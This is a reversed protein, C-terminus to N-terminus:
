GALPTRKARRDVATMHAVDLAGSHPRLLEAARACRGRGFTAADRAPDILHAAFDFSGDRDLWGQEAAHARLGPSISDTSAGISLANSLTRVGAVKEVAWWRGVTEVVYAEHPDAIVFGNHYYFRYYQGCNGGQGHAELLGTIVEVAGTATAARELGLRVFDMGTLARRRPAAISAHQAENGIVVGHENAGMEAGWMTCPRSILYAHTAAADDIEIYTARLRRGFAAPRRPVSELGQAENRERDSNKAFLVGGRATTTELAVATDCM